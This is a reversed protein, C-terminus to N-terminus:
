IYAKQNNTHINLLTMTVTKFLAAKALTMVIMKGDNSDGDSNNDNNNDNNIPRSEIDKHEILLVCPKYCLLYMVVDDDNDDNDDNNDDNDNPAWIYKKNELVILGFCTSPLLLLLMINNLIMKEKFIAIPVAVIMMIMMMIIIIIIMIPLVEKLYADTFKLWTQRARTGTM